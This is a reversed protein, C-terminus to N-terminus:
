SNSGKLRRKRRKWEALVASCGSLNEPPEWTDSRSSYNLWRIRYLKVAGNRDLKEDVIREVEYEEQKPSSI